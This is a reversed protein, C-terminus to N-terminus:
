PWYEYEMIYRIRIQGSLDLAAGQTGIADGAASPPGTWEQKLREQKLREQELARSCGPRPKERGLIVTGFAAPTMRAGLMESPTIDPEPAQMGRLVLM